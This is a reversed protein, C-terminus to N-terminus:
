IDVLTGDKRLRVTEYHEIPEGRRIRELIKPQENQREAPILLTISKGIMEDASYGFLREAGRNWSTVIGNLDKSAIADDSSEVIAALRLAAEPAGHPTDRSSM